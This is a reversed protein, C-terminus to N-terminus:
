SLPLPSEDRPKHKSARSRLWLELQLLTWIRGSSRWDSRLTAYSAALIRRVEREDLVSYIRAGRCLHDNSLEALEGELWENMPAGFGQKKGAIIANPLMPALAERFLSKTQGGRLKEYPPISMALEVVRHDLLPSRSELGCYMSMMDVKKLLDDPLYYHLDFEFAVSLPDDGWGPRLLPEPVPERSHTLAFLDLDTLPLRSHLWDHRAGATFPLPYLADVLDVGRLGCLRSLREAAGATKRVLWSDSYRRQRLYTHYGAFLEDGGDGTLVVKVHERAARCVALTPVISSDSLPEDFYASASLLDEAANKGVVLETHKTQYREAVLRAAPLENVASDFGVSFTLLPESSAEQAFAVVSASDLGGSLLVGVGVDAVLKQPITEALTARIREIHDQRTSVRDLPTPTLSWYTSERTGDINVELMSAPALKKVHRYISRPSSVWGRQIYEALAYPDIDSQFGPLAELAKIESACAFFRPHDIYYLPKEGLRDRYIFLKRNRFDAIVYAFMGVTQEVGSAGAEEYLHVLCETDSRTSFHHGATALRETLERYNYIEGNLICAIDGTENFIPQSGSALDIISLRTHGLSIGSRSYKTQADPGRRGLASVMRPFAELEANSMDSRSFYAVIGCM